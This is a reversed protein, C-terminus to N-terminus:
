ARWCEKYQKYEEKTLEKEVRQVAKGYSNGYKTNCFVFSGDPIDKNGRSRFYYIKRNLGHEIGYLVYQKKPEQLKFKADSSSVVIYEYDNCCNLYHNAFDIRINCNDLCVINKLNFAFDTCSYIDGPKIREIVEQFTFETQPEEYLTFEKPQPEEYLKLEHDYWVAGIGNFLSYGDRIYKEVTRFQVGHKWPIGCKLVVKDGVKFKHEDKFKLNNAKIVKEWCDKCGILCSTKREKELGYGMPCGSLYYNGKFFEEKTYKELLSNINNMM